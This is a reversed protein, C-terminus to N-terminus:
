SFIILVGFVLLEYALFIYFPSDVTREIFQKYYSNTHKVDLPLNENSYIEGLLIKQNRENIINEGINEIIVDKIINNTSVYYRNGFTWIGTFAM